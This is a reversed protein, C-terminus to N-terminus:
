LSFLISLLTSISTYAVMVEAFRNILMKVYFEGFLTKHIEDLEEKSLTGFFVCKLRKFEFHNLVIYFVTIIVVAMTIVELTGAFQYKLVFVLISCLTFWLLNLLWSYVLVKKCKNILYNTYFEKSFYLEM